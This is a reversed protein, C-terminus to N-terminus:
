PGRPSEDMALVESKRRGLRVAQQVCTTVTVVSGEGRLGEQSV